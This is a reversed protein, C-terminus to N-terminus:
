DSLKGDPLFQSLNIKLSYNKSSNSSSEIVQPESIFDTDNFFFTAYRFSGEYPYQRCNCEVNGLKKAGFIFPNQTFAEGNSIMYYAVFVIFCVNVVILAIFLRDRTRQEM